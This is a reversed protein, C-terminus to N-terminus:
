QSWAQKLWSKYAEKQTETPNKLRRVQWKGAARGSLTVDIVRLRDRRMLHLRVTDGVNLREVEQPFESSSVRHGNVAVIEDGAIIGAAYAPGDSLVSRVTLANNRDQVNLGIYSKTSPADKETHLTLELGVANLADEFPYRVAGSVYREFFGRFDSGSHKELAEILDDTTFGPGSLPFRKYMDALVGDLSVKNETKARIELDILLSVLAGSDYFSVTSNVDDPTPHNFKIWADFSSEAVSQVAAGPRNRLRDIEDGLAKLHDDPTKLGARVLVLGEYYSTAGESMWLLDTYNEKSFDYPSLGAPRLQKVNWTHFMEHSVLELFDAYSKPDELYRRSIQMITSNLHETGGRAEADIHVLFVYKKYPMDGFIASQEEVIRAFDRKIRERDYKAQGWLAVEHPKGRVEFKLVDHIGIELPSDILVDYSPALFTNSDAGAQELGTAVRWDKPAKVHVAVADNRRGSVYFFVTAGSLFAHTDDVHRTRDGLSNAYVTYEIAVEKAGNTTVKWTTKDTKEVSLRAGRLTAARVNRVTGAPDLVAYRGPRWVPLAVELSPTAVNRVLMRIDVIQTQPAPLSITYDIPRDQAESVPVGLSMLLISRIIFRM